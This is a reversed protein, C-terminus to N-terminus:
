TLPRERVATGVVMLSAALLLSAGTGTWAMALSTQESALAFVVPGAAAGAFLGVQTVGTAQAAREAFQEAIGYHFLGNWSWASAGMVLSLVVFAAAADRAFPLVGTVVGGALMLIVVLPLPDLGRRDVVFGASIRGVISMTSVLTLVLGATALSAGASASLSVLYTGTSVFGASGFAAAGTWVLLRIWGRSSWGPSRGLASSMPDPRDSSRGLIVLAFCGLGCLVAVMGFCVRWSLLTSVAPLSLGALLGAAPTAAQKMGFAFGRRSPAVRSVLIINALPQSMALTVGFMASPGLLGGVHPVELALATAGLASFGVCARLGIAVGTSALVAGMVPSAVAAVGNMTLIATAVAVLDADHDRIILPSLAGLLFQPLVGLVAVGFALLVPAWEGKDISPARTM